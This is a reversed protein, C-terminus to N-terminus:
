ATIKSKDPAGLDVPGIRVTGVDVQEQDALSQAIDRLIRAVASQAEPQIDARCV